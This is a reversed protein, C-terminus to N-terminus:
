LVEKKSCFRSRVPLQHRGRTSTRATASRPVHRDTSTGAIPKIVVQKSRKMPSTAAKPVWCNAAANLRFLIPTTAVMQLSHWDIRVLNAFAYVSLWRRPLTCRVSAAPLQITPGGDEHDRSWPSGLQSSSKPSRQADNTRTPLTLIKTHSAHNVRESNPRREASTIRFLSSRSHSHPFRANELSIELRPHFDSQSKWGRTMEMAHNKNRMRGREGHSPSLLGQAGQRDDNRRGGARGSKPDIM